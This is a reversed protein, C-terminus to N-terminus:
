EQRGEVPIYSHKHEEFRILYFHSTTIILLTKTVLSMSYKMVSNQVDISASSGKRM